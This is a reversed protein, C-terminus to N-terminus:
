AFIEAVSVSFGPLVADVSLTEDASYVRMTKPTTFVHVRETRPYILWVMKVGFDFWEATKAEIDDASNGPSIIEVVLDPAISLFGETKEPIRETQIFAIDAARTTFQDGRTYFGVEGTVFEGTKHADQYRSFIAALRFEVKGHRWSTPSMTGGRPVLEGDILEMGSTKAQPMALLDDGTLKKTQTEVM